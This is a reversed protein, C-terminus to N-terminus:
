KTVIKKSKIPTKLSHFFGIIYKHQFAKASNVTRKFFYCFALAKTGAPLMSSSGIHSVALSSQAENKKDTGMSENYTLINGGTDPSVFYDLHSYITLDSYM